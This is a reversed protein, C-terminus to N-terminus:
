LILNTRPKKPPQATARECSRRLEETLTEIITFTEENDDITNRLSRLTERIQQIVERNRNWIEVPKGPLERVPGNPESPPGPDGTSADGLEWHEPFSRILEKVDLQNAPKVIFSDAGLAYARRINEMGDIASIVIRLTQGFESRGRMLKLIELGNTDPLRLDLFVAGVREEASAERKSHLFALADTGNSLHRIRNKVGGARLARELLAAESETDEIILIEPM